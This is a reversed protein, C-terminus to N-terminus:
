VWLTYSWLSCLDHILCSYHSNGVHTKAWLCNILTEIVLIAFILAYSSPHLCRFLTYYVPLIHYDCASTNKLLLFMVPVFVLFTFIYRTFLLFSFLISALSVNCNNHCYTSRFSCCSLFTTCSYSFYPKRHMHLVPLFPYSPSRFLPSDTMKGEPGQPIIHWDSPHPAAPIPRLTQYYQIHLLRRRPIAATTRLDHLAQQIQGPHNFRTAEDWM